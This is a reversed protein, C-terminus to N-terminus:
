RSVVEALPFSLDGCKCIVNEDHTLHWGGCDEHGKGRVERDIDFLLGTTNRAITAPM